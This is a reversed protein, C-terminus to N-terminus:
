VKNATRFRFQVQDINLVHVDEDEADQPIQSEIEINGTNALQLSALFIRCVDYRPKNAALDALSVVEEADADLNEVYRSMIEDGYRDIDFAPHTEEEEFIPRLREEWASVREALRSTREYEKGAKHWREEIEKVLGEYSGADAGFDVGDTINQAAVPGSATDADTGAPAANFNFDVDPQNDDYFDDGGFDGDDMDEDDSFGGQMQAQVLDAAANFSAASNRGHAMGFASSFRTAMEQMRQARRRERVQEKRISRFEECVPMIRSSMKMKPVDFTTVAQVAPFAMSSKHGPSAEDEDSSSDGNATEEIITTFPKGRTGALGSNDSVSDLWRAIIDDKSPRNKRRRAARLNRPVVFTKGKKFEKNGRRSGSTSDTHPDLKELPDAAKVVDQALKQALSLARDHHDNQAAVEQDQEYDDDGFDAGGFDSMDADQGVDEVDVHSAGFQDRDIGTRSLRSMSLDVPENRNFCASKDLLLAGSKDMGCSSMRFQVNDDRGSSKDKGSSHSLLNMISLRRRGNSTVSAMSDVSATSMNPDVGGFSSRRSRSSMSSMRRLALKSEKLDINKAATPWDLQLFHIEGDFDFVDKNKALSIRRKKTSIANLSAYVLKLLSEVKRSWHFTSGQILLAAEAFNCNKGDITIQLTSLEELYGELDKAIDIEWDNALNRLPKLLHGFKEM